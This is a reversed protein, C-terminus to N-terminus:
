TRRKTIFLLRLVFCILLYFSICIYIKKIKLAFSPVDYSSTLHCFTTINLSNKLM